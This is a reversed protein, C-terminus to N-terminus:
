KQFNLCTRYPMRVMYLTNTNRPLIDMKEIQQALIAVAGSHLASLVLVANFQNGISADQGGAIFSSPNTSLIDAVGHQL